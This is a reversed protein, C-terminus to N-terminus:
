PKASGSVFTILHMLYERNQNTLGKTPHPLSIGMKLHEDINKEFYATSIRYTLYSTDLDVRAIYWHTIKHLVSWYLEEQAKIWSWLLVLMLRKLLKHDIEHHKIQVM